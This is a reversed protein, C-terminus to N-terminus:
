SEPNYDTSYPTSDVSDEETEFLTSSFDEFLHKTFYYDRYQSDM